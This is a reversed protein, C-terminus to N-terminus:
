GGAWWPSTPVASGGTGRSRTASSAGRARPVAARGGVDEPDPEGAGGGAAAQGLFRAVLRGARGRVLLRRDHDLHVGGALAAWPRRRVSREGRNFVPVLLLFAGFVCRGSSSSSARSTSRRWRWCARLVLPPVLRAPSLGRPHEPRAALRPRRAWSSRSSCWPRWPRPASSWTAGPPTPGSRCARGSSCRRTASATPPPTWRSAPAPGSPSATGCCWRRPAPRGPRLGARSHLLCPLRLVPEAHGRRHHRGGPHLARARRGVVPMRGAQAAGVIVSWVANQDWRLLQGTFALALTLLLLVAGTLWNLERPFKYAAMLYTRSVHIGILLVM